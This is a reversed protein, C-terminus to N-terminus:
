SRRWTPSSRRITPRSRTRTRDLVPTGNPNLEDAWTFLQMLERAYNENAATGQGCKAKNNNAMNLYPGHRPEAHRSQDIDRYNRVRQRPFDALLASVRVGPPVTVQSVVWIQSLIFAVRQRLQDPGNVANQFFAAQV